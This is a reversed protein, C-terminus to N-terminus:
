YMEFVETIFSFMQVVNHAKVRSFVLEKLIRIGAEAYNNTHNGRIHLSTRYCHAWESRKPRLLKLHQLFHPYRAAEPCKELLEHYCSELATESAAYLLKRLKKILVLHDNESM